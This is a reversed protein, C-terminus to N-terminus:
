QVELQGLVSYVQAADQGVPRNHVVDWSLGLRWYGPRTAGCYTRREGDDIRLRKQVRTRRQFLRPGIEGEGNRVPVTVADRVEHRDLLPLGAATRGLHVDQVACGIELFPQEVRRRRQLLGAVIEGEGHRVPVAVADRVEHRDLLTLGAATRALHVDQ